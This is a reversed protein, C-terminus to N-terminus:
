DNTTTRGDYRNPAVAIASFITLHFPVNYVYWIYSTREDHDVPQNWPETNNDDDNVMVLITNTDTLYFGPGNFNKIFDTEGGFYDHLRGLSGVTRWDCQVQLM